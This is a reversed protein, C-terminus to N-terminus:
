VFAKIAAITEAPASLNPCHGSADLQQFQSRPVAAAVYRGVAEPAILDNACQLVLTPVPVLPLDARNDGLFTAKAFRLAIDPSARCFTEALEDSLSPQEPNGMIAPASEVAWGHYNSNVAELLEGIDQASFGGEYGTAPDDVYRPSPGIMVLKAFHSPSRRAAVAGIMSSVSHGVFIVDELALEEFIRLVDDVYGDLTEYREPQYGSLDSLGFGMHDFLIVRHTAEFAPAVFRWMGQDCGFGHAFVMPPADPNGYVRVNNALLT